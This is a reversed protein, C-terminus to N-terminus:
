NTIERKIIQENLSTKSFSWREAIYVDDENNEVKNKLFDRCEKSSMLNKHPNFIVSDETISIVKILVHKKQDFKMQYIDGVAIGEIRNDVRHNYQTRLDNIYPQNATFAICLVTLIAGTYTWKPTKIQRYVEPKTPYTRGDFIAGCNSCCFSRKTSAPLIPIWFVHFYEQHTTLYISHERGCANCTHETQIKPQESSGTGLILM